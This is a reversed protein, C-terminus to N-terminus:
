DVLIVKTHLDTWHYLEELEDNNVSVCGWTLLKPGTKDWDGSWGHIGIGGGLRTNKPPEKGSANANLIKNYQDQTILKDKLGRQADHNNPYNLRMWHTGLFSGWEGSFPGVAKQIVAYEGSPTKNDGQIKKTGDPNQGFAAVYKKVQNGKEWCTLDFNGKDIFILKEEKTPVLCKRYKKIFDSPALYHEKVWEITKGHSSPWYDAPYNKMPSNRIEFHLHAPYAGGGDGISGIQQRKSVTDGRKTLINELHAYLSCVTDLQGNNLYSHQVLVVGGWPRGFDKAELVLGKAISYVPQGKDTNGGGVGNWDEGTHIGLEYVEATKVAIYWGNYTKGSVLDTYSGKGDTNGVPFDFGDALLLSFYPTYKFNLIATDSTLEEPTISILEPHTETAACGNLTLILLASGLPNKIKM